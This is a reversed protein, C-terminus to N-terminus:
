PLSTAPAPPQGGKFPWRRGAGDMLTRADRVAADTNDLLVQVKPATGDIARTAAEATAKASATTEDLKAMSEGAKASLDTVQKELTALARDTNGLTRKVDDRALTDVDDVLRDVKRRTERLEGALKRLDGMAVRFDGAPDNLYGLLKTTGDIVPLTRNRLDAAIDALAPTPEFQVSEGSQLSPLSANGSKMALYSDGILGERAISVVSDAKVWRMYQEEIRLQVDVRAADNLAVSKVEGIKFGSLKVAMGARLDTGSPAEVLIDVKRTFYGQQAALLVLLGVSALLALLAFAAIKLNLGRFRPDTDRLLSM